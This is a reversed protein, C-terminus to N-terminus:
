QALLEALIDIARELGGLDLIPAPSAGRRLEDLIAASLSEPTLRSPPLHVAVGLEAFREARLRQEDSGDSRPVVVPRKGAAIAELPSNYGGMTVVVDAAAVASLLDPSFGVLELRELSAAERRLRELKPAPLQPGAVLYSRVGPLRGERVARLYTLLLPAGDSGGGATVVVLPEAEAGLKRRITAAPAVPEPRRLYGTFNTKAAIEPGLAYAAIPDFIQQNGYVLIRDFIM